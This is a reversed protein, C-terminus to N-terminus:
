KKPKLYVKIEAPMKYTVCACVTTKWYIRWTGPKLVFGLFKKEPIVCEVKIFKADKHINPIYQRMQYQLHRQTANISPLEVDATGEKEEGRTAIDEVDFAEKPIIKKLEQTTKEFTVDYNVKEETKVDSIVEIKDIADAPIEKKALVKAEELSYGKFVRTKATMIPTPRLPVEGTAWWHKADEHAVRLDLKRLKAGQECVLIPGLRYFMQASGVSARM